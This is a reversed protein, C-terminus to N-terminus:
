QVYHQVTKSAATAGGFNMVARLEYLGPELGEPLGRKYTATGGIAVKQKELPIQGVTNGSSDVVLVIGEADVEVNGDNTFEVSVFPEKGNPGTLKAIKGAIQVDKEIVQQTSTFNAIVFDADNMVELKATYVGTPLGAPLAGKLGAKDGVKIPKEAVLKVTAVANGKADIFTVNAHPSFALNGKNQVMAELSLAKKQVIPPTQFKTVLVNHVAAEGVGVVELTGYATENGLGPTSLTATLKYKGKSLNAPAKWTAKINRTFGPFVNASELNVKAVEAGKENTIVVIGGVKEHVEGKSTAGVFLTIPTGKGQQAAYVNGPTVQRKATGPLTLEILVGVRVYSTISEDKKKAPIGLVYMAAYAGGTRGKPVTVKVELNASKGAGLKFRPKKVSLMKHGTFKYSEPPTTPAGSLDHGLPLFEVVIEWEEGSDNTVKIPPLVDGSKVVATEVIVPSVILGGGAEARSALGAVVLLFATASVARRAASSTLM